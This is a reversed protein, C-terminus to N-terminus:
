ERLYYENVRESKCENARASKKECQKCRKRERVSTAEHAVTGSFANWASISGVTNVGAGAGAGAGRDIDAHIPTRGTTHAVWHVTSM